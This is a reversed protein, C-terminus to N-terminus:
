ERLGSSLVSSLSSSENKIKIGELIFIKNCVLIPSLRTTQHLGESNGKLQIDIQKPLFPPFLSNVNVKSFMLMKQEIM